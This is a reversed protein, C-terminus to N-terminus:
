AVRARVEGRAQYLEWFKGSIESAEIGGQGGNDWASGKVMGAVMVEGVYVGDAKLQEALLGVLKYKAANALAVGMTKMGVAVADMVPGNEGFAGNTVLLAGGASKLDPFAEQVAALLGVVAVDFIHGVVAPDAALLDGTEGGSYANWHVVDIAGFEARAKAVAARISAPDGADGTFGAVAVGKGKLAQVGEALRAENRAILAVSFGQAGFTEAVATSIGPGFGIVVITKSM